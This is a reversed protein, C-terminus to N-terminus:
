EGVVSQDSGRGAQEPFGRSIMAYVIQADPSMRAVVNEASANQVNGDSDFAFSVIGGDMYEINHVTLGEHRVLSYSKIDIINHIGVSKIRDLSVVMSGDPKTRIERGEKTVVTITGDANKIVKSGNRESPEM